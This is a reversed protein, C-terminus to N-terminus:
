RVSRLHLQKVPEVPVMIPQVIQTESFGRAIILVVVKTATPYSIIVHKAVHLVSGIKSWALSIIGEPYVTGVAEVAVLVHEDKIAGIGAAITTQVSFYHKVFGRVAGASSQDPGARENRGQLRCAHTFTPRVKVGFAQQTLRGIIWVGSIGHTTVNSKLKDADRQGVIVEADTVIRIARIHGLVWKRELVNSTALDTRVRSNWNTGEISKRGLFSIFHMM